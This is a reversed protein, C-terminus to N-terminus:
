NPQNMEQLKFASTSPIMKRILEIDSTDLREPDITTRFHHPLNSNAIIHISEAILHFPFHVGSLLPYKKEPAKIDMAVYSILNSNILKQLTKPRSGNTDLKVQYDMSVIETIFEDLDNHITPEGGTICVTKLVSRRRSLFSFVDRYSYGKEKDMPILTANHCYPCCFNCGQTFIVACPFNPYDILSFKQFGSIIM